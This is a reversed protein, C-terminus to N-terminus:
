EFPVERVSPITTASITVGRSQRTEYLAQRPIVASTEDLSYYVLVSLELDSIAFPIRHNRIAKTGSAFTPLWRYEEFMGQTLHEPVVFDVSEGAHVLVPLDRIPQLDIGSLVRYAEGRHPWRGRRSARKLHAGHIFVAAGMDTVIVGLWRGGAPGDGATLSEKFPKVGFKVSLEAVAAAAATRSAMAAERSTEAAAKSSEASSKAADALRKTLAVYIATVVVLALTAVPAAWDRVDSSISAAHM